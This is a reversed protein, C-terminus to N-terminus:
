IGEDSNTENKVKLIGTFATIASTGTSVISDGTVTCIDYKVNTITDIIMPLNSGSIVTLNSVKQCVLSSVNFPSGGAIDTFVIVQTYEHSLNLLLDTLNAKYEEFDSTFSIFHLDSVDGILMELSSKFGLPFDGHGTIVIGTNM